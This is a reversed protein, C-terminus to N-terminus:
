EFEMTVSDMEPRISNKTEKATRFEFKFGYGKELGSLDLKAPERTVHKAFGEKYDYRENVHQWSTWQDIEEDNDTDVGARAEVQEVWPGPSIYDTDTQTVLYFRGEAFMIDPDPHGRGIHGQFTFQEDLSPSTFWAVSMHEEGAPNYDAFLYYQEGIRIAAWDGFADQEPQHVEYDAVNTDWDPHQLWHPHKYSRMEGTPTTRKDVVPSLIEFGDIGTPSAAHGALPSDWGHTSANIPSWDEYIIHFNGEEGRIVGIDSGDSPDRFAMGLDKGPVGDTLDGDIYLQPDQDNPYDYYFYTKGDVYEATTVWRSFNETVQGHHVWHKMDRSQWAHYGFAKNKGGQADFQDEFPTTYLPIDFGPLSASKLKFDETKKTQEYLGFMWYNNPGKALAVPADGLNSPGINEVPTWNLWRDSQKFVISQASRKTNFKKLKSSFFANDREAKVYGEQITINEGDARADVWQKQTGIQWPESPEGVLSLLIYLVSFVVPYIYM